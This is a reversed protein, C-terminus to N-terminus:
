RWSLLRYVEEPTVTGELVFRRADEVMPKFGEQVALRFLVDPDTEGRCILKGLEQSIVLIEHLQVRGRCGTGSCKECGKGHYFKVKGVM